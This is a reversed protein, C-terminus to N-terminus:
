NLKDDLEALSDEDPNLSLWYNFLSRKKKRVTKITHPKCQYIFEEFYYRFNHPKINEKAYRLLELIRIITDYYGMDELRVFSYSINCAVEKIRKGFGRPRPTACYETADILIDIAYKNQEAVFPWIHFLSKNMERQNYPDLHKLTKDVINSLLLIDENSSETSYNRSLDKFTWIVDLQWNGDWNNIDTTKVDKYALTKAMREALKNATEYDKKRMCERIFYSKHCYFDNACHLFYFDMIEDNLALEYMKKSNYFPLMLNHFERTEDDTLKGNDQFNFTKIYNLIPSFDCM